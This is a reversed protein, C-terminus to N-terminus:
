SVTAFSCSRKGPFIEHRVIPGAPSILSGAALMATVTTGINAGLTYPFIQPLTLVGAGVLPVVLSTTVSSSQIAATTLLGVVFATAGNRFLTRSFLGSLRDRLLGQLMKVLIVLAVLLLAM